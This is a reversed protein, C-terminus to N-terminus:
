KVASACGRPGRLDIPSIASGNIRLIYSTRPPTNSIIPTDLSMKEVLEAYSIDELSVQCKQGVLTSLLKNDESSLLLSPVNQAEAM